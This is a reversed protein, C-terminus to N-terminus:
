PWGSGTSWSIRRPMTLRGLPSSASEGHRRESGLIRATQWAKLQSSQNIIDCPDTILCRPPQCAPMLSRRSPAVTHTGIHTHTHTHTGVLYYALMLSSLISTTSKYNSNILPKKRHQMHTFMHNRCTTLLCVAKM